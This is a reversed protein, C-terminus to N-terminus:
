AKIDDCKTASLFFRFISVSLAFSINITATGVWNNLSTFFFFDIFKWIAVNLKISINKRFEKINRFPTSHSRQFTWALLIRTNLIRFWTLRISCKTTFMSKHRHFIALATSGKEFYDFNYCLGLLHCYTACATTSGIEVYSGLNERM